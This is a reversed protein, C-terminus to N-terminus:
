FNKRQIWQRKVIVHQNDWNWILMKTKQDKLTSRDVVGLQLVNFFFRRHRWIKSFLKQTKKWPYLFFHLWKMHESNWVLLLQNAWTMRMVDCVRSKFGITKVNFIINQSWGMEYGMYGRVEFISAPLVLSKYQVSIQYFGSQLAGHYTILIGGLSQYSM